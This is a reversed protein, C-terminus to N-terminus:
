DEDLGAAHRGAAPDGAAYFMESDKDVYLMSPAAIAGAQTRLQHGRSALEERVNESVSDNITLSGVQGFTQERNPNPDFSDEHHATAFRPATAADEPLMGFEVFNLLLNMTAQDQLDGGAVSIALIPAGDKLVLTPTLTIRPRKGAEISNPHGPTTNLSRLRNGYSVGTTGTGGAHYVNASPTASVVNGWRDAVVCTTTGGVGPRFVGNAKLPKMNEVDGPQAEHSAKKMDILPRRIETYADSLLKAMPVDVFEPDAYYEDRDAMALKLAETVVHVYDASFQGMAKLDFGELLRLAQCLYPGQTWTGCKCVTYGRYDVTVPDEILTVHAALDKKRLFGGNKIYFAELEDAIDSHVSNRGYFRDSAAQVKQERSGSTKREEEVMRRLTVALDSHWEAKGTDLLALTPAIIEEFTMTGYLKLTTTCLDVVSPVPAMKVDANPIGNEMYWDIADQSLPARGQGSLSKAEQKEADFILLPVEGGISCAGHDTVNLALITGAAADAANGGAELIEIGAAVAKAGGAAVVGTKSVAKWGIQQGNRM